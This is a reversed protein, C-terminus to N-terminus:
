YNNNGNKSELFDSPTQAGTGLKAENITLDRTNGSFVINGLTTVDTKVLDPIKTTDVQYYPGATGTKYDNPKVM